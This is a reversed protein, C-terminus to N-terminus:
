CRVGMVLLMEVPQEAEGFGAVLIPHAVVLDFAAVAICFHDRAVALIQQGHVGSRLGGLSRAPLVPASGRNTHRAAGCLQSVGAKASRSRSARVVIM